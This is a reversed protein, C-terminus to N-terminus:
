RLDKRSIEDKNHLTARSVTVGGVVVPELEAWPTLAGTRGVNVHIAKLTTESQEAPFKYAIAWRPDRGVFGLRSQLSLSDIKIVVGDIGYDLSDRVEGANSIATMVDEVSNAKKYSFKYM